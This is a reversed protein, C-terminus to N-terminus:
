RTVWRGRGVLWDWGRALFRPAPFSFADIRPGLLTLVAPMVVVAAGTALASCLLVGIGISTLIPTPAIATALILAVILATGSLLVARGATTVVGAAAMGEERFRDVIMLSFGVGLALGTISALAVALADTEIVQGLLAM